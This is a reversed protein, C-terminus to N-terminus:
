SPEEQCTRANPVEEIVQAQLVKIQDTLWGEAKAHRCTAITVASALSITSIQHELDFLAPDRTKIYHRRFTNSGM